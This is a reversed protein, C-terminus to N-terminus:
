LNKNKEIRCKIKILVCSWFPVLFSFMNRKVSKTFANREGNMDQFFSHMGRGNTLISSRTGPVDNRFSQIKILVNLLIATGQSAFNCCSLDLCRSDGTKQCYKRWRISRWSIHGRRRKTQYLARWRLRIWTLFDNLAYKNSFKANMFRGDKQVNTWFLVM